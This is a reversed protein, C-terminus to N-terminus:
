FDFRVEGVVSRRLLDGFVHQQVTQNLLNNGKVATTIRGDLGRDCLQM